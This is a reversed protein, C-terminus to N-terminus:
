AAEFPATSVSVMPAERSSAGRPMRTFATLGPSISVSM